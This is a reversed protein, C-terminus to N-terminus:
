KRTNYLSQVRRTYQEFRLAAFSPEVGFIESIVLIAAQKQFPLNIRELMFSPICFHLAFNNAQREQLELFASPLAHQNGAHLLLHCLEHAFEQWQAHPSLHQNLLIVSCCEIKFCKSVGDVYDVIVGMRAAIREIGLENPDQIGISTYFTEIFDELHTKTFDM